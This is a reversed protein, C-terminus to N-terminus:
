SPERNRSFNPMESLREQVSVSHSIQPGHCIGYALIEDNIAPEIVPQGTSGSVPLDEGPKSVQKWVLQPSSGGRNDGCEVRQAIAEKLLWEDVM